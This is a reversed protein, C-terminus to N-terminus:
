YKKTIEWFAFNVHIHNRWNSKLRTNEQNLFNLHHSRWNPLEVDSVSMWSLLQSVEFTCIQVKEVHLILSKQLANQGM